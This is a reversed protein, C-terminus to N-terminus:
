LQAGAPPVDFIAVPKVAPTYVTVTESSENHACVIVNDIVSGLLTTEETFLM